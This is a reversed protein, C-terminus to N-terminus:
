LIIWTAGDEITVMFGDGISIPGASMANYAAPITINENIVQANYAIAKVSATGLLQGGGSFDVFTSTGDGNSQLIQNDIATAENTPKIAYTSHTHSITAYLGDFYTKLTAKINAWTLKKVVNSAASDVLGLSDADVPTTKPSAGNIVAGLTTTDLEDANATIVGDTITISTGDVKVGGLVTTSATPLTYNNYLTDFYTKLTAKIQAWTTQKLTSADASDRIGIFDGDVPTAKPAALREDRADLEADLKTTNDLLYVADIRTRPFLQNGLNDMLTKVYTNM